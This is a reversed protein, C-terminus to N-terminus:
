QTTFLKWGLGANNKGIIFRSTLFFFKVWASKISKSIRNCTAIAFILSLTEKLSFYIGGVTYRCDMLSILTSTHDTVLIQRRRTITIM